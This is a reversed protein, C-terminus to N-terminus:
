GPSALAASARGPPTRAPAASAAPRPAAEIRFSVPGVSLTDGPMLAAQRPVPLDNIWIPGEIRQVTFTGARLTFNCHRNAVGEVAIHLECDAHGGCIWEGDAPFQWTECKGYLPLITPITGAFTTRKAPKMTVSM